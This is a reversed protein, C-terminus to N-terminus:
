LFYKIIPSLYNQNKNSDLGGTSTSSAINVFGKRQQQKKVRNM